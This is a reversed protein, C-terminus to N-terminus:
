LAAHELKRLLTLLQQQETASLVTFHEVHWAEQLPVVEDFLNQGSETLHLHKCRGAVRREILGRAELKVLQYTVNGETVFLRKSLEQQTLGPAAGAHTLIDFETSSLGWHGLRLSAARAIKSNLHALRLWSVLAPHRAYPRTKKRELQEVM